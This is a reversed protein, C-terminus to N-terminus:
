EDSRKYRPADLYPWGIPVGGEVSSGTEVPGRRFMRKIHANIGTPEPMRIASPPEQAGHVCYAVSLQLNSCDSQLSPNWYQLQQFTIAFREQVKGCYDGTQIVYWEYCTPTTGTPTAAPPSVVESSTTTNWDATPYVCYYMGQQLNSCQSDIGSNIALFLGLSITQNLTVLQCYDGQQVMYYSGCKRTTGSAIPSPPSATSTAYIATNTVTAGPITTLKTTGGPPSICLNRGSLLNTCYNNLSPNWAIIQHLQLNRKEAISICTDGSQVVYSQCTSPLCLIQGGQLDSCDPLLQNISILTGTSVNNREAIIECNEGAKVNYTKGTLCGYNYGSGPNAFGFRNTVNTQLTPVATPYSIACKKQVDAWTKALGDGYNSYPTSQLQRFLGIMCSSCIQSQPWNLVNDDLPTTGNYLKATYDTCYEGTKSDKLCITNFASIAGDAWYTAPIGQFPEPDKSCGSVIKSRYSNFATGCTQNCLMNQYTVNNLSGYWDSQM